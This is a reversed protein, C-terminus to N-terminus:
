GITPYIPERPCLCRSRSKVTRQRTQQSACLEKEKQWLVSVGHQNHFRSDIPHNRSRTNVDSWHRTSVDWIFIGTDDSLCAGPRKFYSCGVYCNLRKHESNSGNFTEDALSNCGNNFFHVTSNFFYDNSWSKLIEARWQTQKNSLSALLEATWWEM